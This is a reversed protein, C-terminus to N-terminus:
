SLWEEERPQMMELQYSGNSLLVFRIGRQKPNEMAQYIWMVIIVALNQEVMRVLTYAMKKGGTQSNFKHTKM